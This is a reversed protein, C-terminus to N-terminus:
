KRLLPLFVQKGQTLIAVDNLQTNHMVGLLIAGGPYESPAIKM